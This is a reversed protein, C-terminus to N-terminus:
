LIQMIGAGFLVPGMVVSGSLYFPFFEPKSILYPNLVFSVSSNVPKLM